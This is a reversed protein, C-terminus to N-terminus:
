VETARRRNQATKELHFRALEPLGASPKPAQYPVDEVVSEMLLFVCVSVIVIDVRRRSGSRSSRATPERWWV